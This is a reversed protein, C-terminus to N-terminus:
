RDNDERTQSSPPVANGALAAALRDAVTPLVDGIHVVAGGRNGVADRLAPFEQGVDFGAEELALALRDAAARAALYGGHDEESM